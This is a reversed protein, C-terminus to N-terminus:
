LDTRIPSATPRATTPRERSLTYLGTAIIVAAGGLTWGDPREGLFVVALILAFVLRTYRFPAIASVEGARMAETVSWYAVIGCLIAGTLAGAAPRDPLPWADGRALSLLIGAPVLAAYVWASLQLSSVRRPVRGTAIDRVALALVAVVVLLSAPVFAETGPQVIMLVGAFGVIVASWRRWGVPEGLLAAAATLVLPLAQLIASATALPVVALATVFSISGVLEGGLRALVMPHWADRSLLAAGRRRLLALYFLFGFFGIGALIQGTPLLVAAVKIFADEVAFAAMAGVMLFVGRRNDM